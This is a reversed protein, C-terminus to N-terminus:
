GVVDMLKYGLIAMILVPALYRVIFLVVPFVPSRMMGHNSLEQQMYNRPLVWGVYICLLISSVPLLINTAVTDLLDFINLGAVTIDSLPGQSLSCVTSFIFLPLMVILCSKVRSM